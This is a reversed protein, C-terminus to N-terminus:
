ATEGRRYRKLALGILAVLGAAVLGMLVAGGIPSWQKAPDASGTQAFEIIMRGIGGDMGISVEAVVTGIVAAAISLRLAPILYPVAAPLRLRILTPWWGSAYSRMLDNQAATPSNLGRVMGVAVPFFALYAAIVAVSMWDQWVFGGFTLESSWRKVLPALAILPVTQSLVIWPLLASNAIKSRQMLLALLMGVVLGIVWGILAVKFSLWAASLVYSWLPAAGPAATVPESARQVMTWLHPMALDNTRPLVITDGLRVGDQPALAKYGEWAAALLLVGLAGWAWSRWGRM